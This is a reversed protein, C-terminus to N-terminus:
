SRRDRGLVAASASKECQGTTSTRSTASLRRWCTKWIRDNSDRVLAMQRRSRQLLRLANAVTEEPDLFTAPYIADELVVLGSTSFLYFLDKTNVIGVIKDLAGDYVPM